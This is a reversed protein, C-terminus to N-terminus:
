GRRQAGTVGFLHVSGVGKRRRLRAPDPNACRVAPAVGVGASDDLFVTEDGYALLRTAGVDAFAPVLLVGGEHDHGVGAAPSAGKAVELGANGTSEVPEFRFM